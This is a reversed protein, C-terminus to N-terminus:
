DGQGMETIGDVTKPDCDPMKKSRSRAVEQARKLLNRETSDQPKRFAIKGLSSLVFVRKWVEINNPTGGFSNKDENAVWQAAYGEIFARIGPNALCIILSFDEVGALMIEDLAHAIGHAFYAQSDSAYGQGWLM